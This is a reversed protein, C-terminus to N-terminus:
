AVGAPTHEVAALSSHSNPHDYRIKGSARNVTAVATESVKYEMGEPMVVQIRHDGGTAINRIPEIVTEMHGPIQVRARRKPVDMEFQIPVFLPEHVTSVLSMVLDFWPSGAKGSLITLLANRQEPTAREDVFPQVTGNGEYLPGPWHYTAAFHLGKLPVSDYHGEEIQMALMGECFGQTPKGWFDCPCGLDCSCSKTYTGKMKWQITASM